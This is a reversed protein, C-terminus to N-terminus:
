FFNQNKHSTVILKDPLESQNFLKLRIVIFKMIGSWFAAYIFSFLALGLQTVSWFQQILPGFLSIRFVFLLITLGCFLVSGSIASRTILKNKISVGVALGLLGTGFAFILAEQFSVACLLAGASLYSILGTLPSVSAILAVPITSLPSLAMGLPSLWVPASQLLVCIAASIGGLCVMRAKRIILKGNNKMIYPVRKANPIDNFIDAFRTVDWSNFYVRM